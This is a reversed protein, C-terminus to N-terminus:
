VPLRMTVVFGLGSADSVELAAGHGYRASLRRRLADLGIGTGRPTSADAAGSGDDRVELVLSSGDLRGKLGLTGGAARPAIAHKIANEVLPQLAFSPVHHGLAAPSIDRTVRLRDGFRISELALYDDVFALEDELLVDERAGRKNDLVYRLLAALRELARQAAAPDRQVLVSVSHLTNFLFHPDLQGRLAELEARTRLADAQVALAAQERSRENARKAWTIGILAAYLLMSEATQWFIWPRAIQLATMFSGAGGAIDLLIMLNWLGAYALSLAVHAIVLTATPRAPWEWRRGIAVVGLGLVAFWGVSKIASLVATTVPVDRAAGILLTYLLVMPSWAAFYRLTSRLRSRTTTVSDEGIIPAPRPQGV